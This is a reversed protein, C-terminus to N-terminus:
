CDRILAEYGRVDTRLFIAASKRRRSRDAVVLVSGRCLASRAVRARAEARENPQPQVASLANAPPNGPQGM